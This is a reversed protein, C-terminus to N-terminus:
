NEFKITISCNETIFDEKYERRRKENKLHIVLVNHCREVEEQEDKSLCDFPLNGNQDKHMNCGLIRLKAALLYKGKRAATVILPESNTTMLSENLQDLKDCFKSNQNNVLGDVEMVSEMDDPNNLADQFKTHVGNDMDM